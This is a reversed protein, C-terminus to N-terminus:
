YTELADEEFHTVVKAVFDLAKQSPLNKKLVSEGSVYRENDSEIAFSNLLFAKLFKTNLFLNQKKLTQRMYLTVFPKQM